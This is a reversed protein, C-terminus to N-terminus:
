ARQRNHALRSILRQQRDLEQEMRARRWGTLRNHGRAQKAQFAIRDERVWLRQAERPTLAGSRRYQTILSRQQQVRGSFPAAARASSATLAVGAALVAAALYTNRTM